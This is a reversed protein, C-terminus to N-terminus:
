AALVEQVTTLLEQREFPKALTRVAGLHEVTTLLDHKNMRGGGSIAIIKVQPYLKRLQLITEVGEKGPMLIDTIILDTPHEHYLRMGMGGDKAEIVTYGARELMHRLMKRVPAEDDIVLVSTM